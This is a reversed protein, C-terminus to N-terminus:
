PVQHDPQPLARGLLARSHRRFSAIATAWGGVETPAPVSIPPDRPRSGSFLLYSCRAPLVVPGSGDVRYLSSAGSSLDRDYGIGASAPVGGAAGGIVANSPLGPRARQRPRGGGVVKGAGAFHEEVRYAVAMVSM